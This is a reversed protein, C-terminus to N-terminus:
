HGGRAWLDVLASWQETIVTGSGDPTLTYTDSTVCVPESASPVACFSTDYYTTGDFSFQSLPCTALPAPSGPYPATGAADAVPQCAPEVPAWTVSFTFPVPTTSFANFNLQQDGTAQDISYNYSTYSKCTQAGSSAPILLPATVGAPAGTPTAATGGGCVQPALTFTSTGVVAVANDDQPVRVSVMDFGTPPTTGTCVGNTNSDATIDTEEPGTITCNVSGVQTAGLFEVLQVSIPGSSVREEFGASEREITIKADSFIRGTGILANSGVTTFNLAEAGGDSDNDNSIESPAGIACVGIHQRSSGVPKTTPIGGYENVGYPFLQGGMVLIPTAGGSVTPTGCNGSSTLTQTSSTGGFPAYTVSTGSSAQTLTIVDPNALTSQSAAAAPNGAGILSEAFPLSLPLSVTAFTLVGAILLRYRRQKM